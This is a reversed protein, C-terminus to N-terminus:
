LVEDPSAPVGDAIAGHKKPYEEGKSWTPLFDVCRNGAALSCTERPSDATTEHVAGGASHAGDPYEDTGGREARVTFRPDVPPSPSIWNM